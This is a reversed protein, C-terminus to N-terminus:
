ISDKRSQQVLFKPTPQMSTLPMRRNFSVGLKAKFQMYIEKRKTQVDDNKDKLIIVKEQFQEPMVYGNLPQYNHKNTLDGKDLLDRLPVRPSRTISNQQTFKKHIIYNQIIPLEFAALGDPSLTKISGSSKISKISTFRREFEDHASRSKSSFNMNSVSRARDNASNFNNISELDPTSLHKLANLKDFISEPQVQYTKLKKPINDYKMRYRVSKIFNNDDLSFSSFNKQRSGM